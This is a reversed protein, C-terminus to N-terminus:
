EGEKIAPPAKSAVDLKAQLADREAALAEMQAKYYETQSDFIDKDIYEQYEEDRGGTAEASLQYRGAKDGYPELESAWIERPWIPDDSTDTM